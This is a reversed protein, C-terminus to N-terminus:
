IDFETKSTTFVTVQWFIKDSLSNKHRNEGKQGFVFFIM